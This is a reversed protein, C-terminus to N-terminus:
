AAQAVRQEKRPKSLSRTENKSATKRTGSRKTSGEKRKRSSKSRRIGRQLENKAIEDSSRSKRRLNRDERTLMDELHGAKKTRSSSARKSKRSGGRSNTSTRVTKVTRKSATALGNTEPEEENGMMLMKGLRGENKDRRSCSKSRGATSRQRTQKNHKKQISRTSSLSISQSKEIEVEWPELESSFSLNHTHLTRTSLSATQESFDGSSSSFRDFIHRISESGSCQVREPVGDGTDLKQSMKSRGRGSKRQKTAKYQRRRSGRGNSKNSPPSDDLFYCSTGKEDCAIDTFVDIVSAAWSHRMSDLVNPYTDYRNGKPIRSTM